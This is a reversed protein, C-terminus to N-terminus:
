EGLDKPSSRDGSAEAFIIASISRSPDPVISRWSNERTYPAFRRATEAALTGDEQGRGSRGRRQGAALICASCGGGVYRSLACLGHPFALFAVSFVTLVSRANLDTARAPLWVPLSDKPTAAASADPEPLLGVSSWPAAAACCSVIPHFGAGGLCPPDRPCARKASAPASPAAAVSAASLGGTRSPAASSDSAPPSGAPDPRRAPESWFGAFGPNEM